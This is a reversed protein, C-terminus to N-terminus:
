LSITDGRWAEIEKATFCIMIGARGKALILQPELHSSFYRRLWLEKPFPLLIITLSNNWFLCALSGRLSVLFRVRFGPYPSSRPLHHIPHPGTEVWLYYVSSLLTIFILLLTCVLFGFTVCRLSEIRLLLQAMKEPSFLVLNSSQQLHYRFHM